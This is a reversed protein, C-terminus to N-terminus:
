ALTRFCPLALGDDFTVPALGVRQGVQLDDQTWADVVNSLIRVPDGETGDLTVVAVNYVAPRPETARTRDPVWIYSYVTGTGPVTSWEWEPSSCRYCGDTPPYRHAGCSACRQVDLRGAAAARWMGENVPAVVPDPMGAPRNVAETM